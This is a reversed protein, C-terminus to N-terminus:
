ALPLVADGNDELLGRFRDFTMRFRGKLGWTESWSNLFTLTETRMNVGICLYEHGGVKNGIPLVHGTKAHPYFMTDYWWTGVLMPGQMMGGLFGDWNFQWLYSKIYGRAQLTKAVALGSSGTDDPPYVGAWQDRATAESYFSLGDGNSLYRTNGRVRRRSQYFQATNMAAAATFGTCAGVSGQDLVPASIGWLVTHLEAAKAPMLAFRRSMPDHEIKRGLEYPTNVNM